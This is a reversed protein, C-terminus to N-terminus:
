MGHFLKYDEEAKRIIHANRLRMANTVDEDSMSGSDKGSFRSAVSLRLIRKYEATVNEKEEASLAGGKQSAAADLMGFLTVQVDEAQIYEGMM